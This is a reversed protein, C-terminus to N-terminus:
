FNQGFREVFKKGDDNPFYERKKRFHPDQTGAAPEFTCNKVEDELMMLNKRTGETDERKFARERM